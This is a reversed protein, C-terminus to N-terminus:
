VRFSYSNYTLGNPCSGTYYTTLTDHSAQAEGPALSPVVLVLAALFLFWRNAM